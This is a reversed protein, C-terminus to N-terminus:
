NIIQLQNIKTIEKKPFGVNYGNDLKILVVNKDFTPMLMGEITEKKTVVKIRDGPAAM